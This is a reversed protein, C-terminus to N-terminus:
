EAEIATIEFECGYSFRFNPQTLQECSSTRNGSVVVNLNGAQFQEPLNAPALIFEPVIEWTDRDLDDPNLTLAYVNFSEGASDIATNNVVVKARVSELRETVTEHDYSTEFVSLNYDEDTCGLTGLVSLTLIISQKM